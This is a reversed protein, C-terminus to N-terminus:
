KVKGTSRGNLYRSVLAELMFSVIDFKGVGKLGSKKGLIRTLVFNFVRLRLYNRLLLGIM